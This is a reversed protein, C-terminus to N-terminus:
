WELLLIAIAGCMKQRMREVNEDTRSTSPRGSRHDDEVEERGQKFVKQAVWFSSNKLQLKELVSLFNWTSENNPAWGECWLFFFFGFIRLKILNECFPWLSLTKVAFRAFFFTTTVSHQFKNKSVMPCQSMWARLWFNAIPPSNPPDPPWHPNPPSAGLPQPNPPMARLRRLYQPRPASGGASSFKANKQLFSKM